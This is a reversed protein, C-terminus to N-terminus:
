SFMQFLVLLTLISQHFVCCVLIFTSTPKIDRHVIKNGKLEVLSELLNFFPDLYVDLRDKVCQYWQKILRKHPRKPCPYISNTKEILGHLTDDGPEEITFVHLKTTAELSEPKVQNFIFYGLMRVAWKDGVPASYYVGRYIHSIFEIACIETVKLAVLMGRFVALYAKTHAGSGLWGTIKFDDISWLKGSGAKAEFDVPLREEEKSLLMKSLDNDAPLHDRGFWLAKKAIPNMCFHLNTFVKESSGLVSAGARESLSFVAPATHLTTKAILSNCELLTKFGLCDPHRECAQRLWSILRRTPASQAKLMTFLHHSDIPPLSDVGEAGSESAVAQSTVALDIDEFSRGLEPGM